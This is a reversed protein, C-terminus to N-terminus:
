PRRASEPASRRTRKAQYMAVDAAHLLAVPDRGDDPYFALGISLSTTITRGDKLAIPTKMSAIIQDIIREADARSRLPNLLVAFEDGGLRAVLDVERLQGKVRAAVSILVQDGAAHGLTDNIQKFSDSDLYLVALHEGSQETYAVGHALRSEFLSRNPLGTLGDHSAQHVLTETERRVHNQWTELEGLLANFDDGLENLESIPAEPVRRDFRRESRAEHAVSALSRLPQIIENLLRRSLHSAFVVSLVTSLMIGVLGGLLFRLVSTGQGTLEIRGVPQGLHEVPQSVPNELLALAVVVELHEFMSTRPKTWHALLTGDATFVKAEAVEETSAILTLSENAAASDNFVVAAEVTYNISRAILRLNHNAYAQLAFVGLLTLLISSLGVALMAVGM